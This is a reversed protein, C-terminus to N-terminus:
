SSREGLDPVVGRAVYARWAVVGQLDGSASLAESRGLFRGDDPDFYLRTTGADDSFSVAIAARGLPDLADLEVGVTPISAAVEFLAHRLDSPVDEQSLLTGITSLLNLDSPAIEIVSGDTLATRLAEPDTPLGQVPYYPLDSKGYPMLDVEGATPMSPMGAEKWTARDRDSVFSVKEYSTKVQGSGDLSLWSEVTARVDFEYSSGSTLLQRVERTQVEMRQYVYDSPGPALPEQQAALRGLQRIEAAAGRTPGVGGPPLLAEVMLVALALFAAAAPLPWRRRRRAVHASPHREEAIAERLRVRARERAVADVALVDGRLLEEFQANDM